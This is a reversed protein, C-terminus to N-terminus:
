IGTKIYKGQDPTTWQAQPGSYGGDPVPKLTFLTAQGNGYNYFMGIEARQNKATYNGATVFQTGGGWVPGDWIAVPILFVSEHRMVFATVHGNGYDYFLVLDSSSSGTVNAVRLFTTGSGWRPGDWIQRWSTTNTQSWSLTWLAVHGGGYDYLFALSTGVPQGVMAKTGPGWDPLLQPQVHMAWGSSQPLLRFVGISRSDYQYFLVIELHGTIWNIASSAMFRTGTGWNPAEWQIQPSGFTNDAPNFAMTYVAAYGDPQEYFFALEARGDRDYDGATVHKIRNSWQTGGIWAMVPGTFGGEGGRLLRVDAGHTIEWIAIDHYGDGDFDAKLQSSDPQFATQAVLSAAAAAEPAVTHPAPRAPQAQASSSAAPALNAALFVAMASIMLRRM